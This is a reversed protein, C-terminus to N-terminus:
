LAMEATISAGLMLRVYRVFGNNDANTAVIKAMSWSDWEAAAEKLLAIDSM